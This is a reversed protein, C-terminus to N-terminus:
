SLGLFEVAVQKPKHGHPTIEPRIAASTKDQLGCGSLMEDERLAFLRSRKGLGADM